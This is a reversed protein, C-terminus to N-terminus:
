IRVLTYSNVGLGIEEAYDMIRRGDVGTAKKFIDGNKALVLDYAARDCAVPDTSAVIGVDRGIIRSDALCDCDSTINNIFTLCVRKKGKLVGFAYEACREQAEDETAGSWPITVAGEDCASICMACGICKDQAIVASRGEISVAGAPCTEVCQGCSICGARISPKIKSHMELKGSRSGSGMGINKIAGGFGFLIHGKFHSVAVVADAEAIRRGIKVEKFIKKDIPVREEEDGREGDAIVIPAGLSGFGHELAIKLHDTANLRMGRYLTNSDTLFFDAKRERLSEIVPRISVPPVFRSNGKEGFHVKVATRDGEAIGGNECRCANEFLTRITASDFKESFFVYPKM